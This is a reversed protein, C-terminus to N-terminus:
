RLTELYDVIADVDSDPLQMAPMRVGPKITAPDRVWSELHQRDNPVVGSGITARSM